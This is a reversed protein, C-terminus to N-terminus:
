VGSDLRGQSPQDARNKQAGSLNDWIFDLRDNLEGSNMLWRVFAKRQIESMPM